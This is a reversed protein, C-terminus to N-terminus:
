NKSTALHGPRAVRDLTFQEILEDRHFIEQIAGDPTWGLLALFNVLADPLYGMDRYQQFQRLAAHRKSM